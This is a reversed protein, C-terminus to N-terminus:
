TAGEIGWMLLQHFPFRRTVTWGKPALAVLERHSFSRRISVLGDPVIFSDHFLPATLAAFWLLALDSRVVDNHIVVQRSLQRTDACLKGLAPESLHHLLHNSIVFDFRRGRTLLEALSAERFTVNSPHERGRVWALARRDADIATIMLEIGDREAWKALRIPIDGAGFGVDLMTLHRGRAAAPKVYLRYIRRWGSALTNIARFQAYTNHLKRPDCAPDEMLERIGTLRRALFTPM